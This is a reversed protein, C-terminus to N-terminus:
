MEYAAAKRGPLILASMRLLIGVFVDIRLGRKLPMERRGGNLCLYVPRLVGAGVDRKRHDEV